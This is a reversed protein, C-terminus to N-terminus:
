IFFKTKLKGSSDLSTYAGVSLYASKPMSAAQTGGFKSLVPEYRKNTANYTVAVYDDAQNMCIQDARLVNVARDKNNLAKSIEKDDSLSKCGANTLERTSVYQYKSSVAVARAGDGYYYAPGSQGTTDLCIYNDQYPTPNNTATVHSSAVAMAAGSHLTLVTPLAVSAGRLVDRRSIGAVAGSASEQAVDATPETVAKDTQDTM